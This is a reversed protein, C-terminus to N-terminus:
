SAYWCLVLLLTGLKISGQELFLHAEQLLLWLATEHFPSLM